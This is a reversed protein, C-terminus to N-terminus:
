WPRALLLLLRQENRMVHVLKPACGLSKLSSVVSTSAATPPVTCEEPSAGAQIRLHTNAQQLDAM